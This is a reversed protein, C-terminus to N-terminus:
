VFLIQGDGAMEFMGAVGMVDKVIPELHELKLGFLDMTMGCAYINIEGVEMAEELTQRWSPVKHQVMAQNAMEAYEAFDASMKQNTKWDDRRFGMLGWFTLFLNVEKGMAAAGTAMITAAMLKDVTGSFLVITLKESM